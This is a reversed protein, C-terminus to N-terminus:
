GPSKWSNSSVKNHLIIPYSRYPRGLSLPTDKQSITRGPVKKPAVIEIASEVWVLLSVAGPMLVLLGSRGSTCILPAESFDANCSRNVATSFRALLILRSMCNDEDM